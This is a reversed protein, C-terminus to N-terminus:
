RSFGFVKLPAFRLLVKNCGLEFNLQAQSVKLKLLSLRDLFNLVQSGFKDIGEVGCGMPSM